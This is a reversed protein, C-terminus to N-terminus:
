PAGGLEDSTIGLAEYLAENRRRQEDEIRPRLWEVRAATASEGLLDSPIEHVLVLGHLIGKAIEQDGGALELADEICAFYNTDFPTISDTKAIRSHKESLERIYIAFPNECYEDYEEEAPGYRWLSDDDDPINRGFIDNDDISQQEVAFAENAVFDPAISAPLHPFRSRLESVKSLVEDLQALKARRLGLSEEAAIVFLIPALEVIRAVPVNYRRSALTFANRV